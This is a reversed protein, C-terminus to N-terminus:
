AGTSPEGGDATVDVVKDVHLHDGRCLFPIVVKLDNAGSHAPNQRLIDTLVTIAADFRGSAMLMQAKLFMAKQTQEAQLDIDFLLLTPLSTAFYDIRATSTLLKEAHATVKKIIDAAQSNRNLRQLSLIQYLTKESYPTPAM